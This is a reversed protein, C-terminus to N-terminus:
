INSLLWHLTCIVFQNRRIFKYLNNVEIFKDRLRILVEVEKVKEQRDKDSSSKMHEMEEREINYYAKLRDAAAKAHGVEGHTFLRLGYIFM